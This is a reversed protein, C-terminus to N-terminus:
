IDFPVVNGTRPTEEYLMKYVLLDNREAEMKIYQESSSKSSILSSHYLVYAQQSSCNDSVAKTKEDLTIQLEGLRKKYTEIDATM